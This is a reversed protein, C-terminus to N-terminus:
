RSLRINETQLPDLEGFSRLLDSGEAASVDNEFDLERAGCDM